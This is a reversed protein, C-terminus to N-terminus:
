DEKLYEKLGEQCREFREPDRQEFSAAWGEYTGNDGYPDKEISALTKVKIEEAILTHCTLYAYPEDYVIPKDYEKLFTDLEAKTCDVIGVIDEREIADGFGGDVDYVHKIIYMSM